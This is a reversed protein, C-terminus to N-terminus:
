QMINDKASIDSKVMANKSLDISTWKTNKYIIFLKSMEQTESPRASLCHTCPTIAWFYSLSALCIFLFLYLIHKCFVLQLPFRQSTSEFRVRGWPYTIDLFDPYGYFSSITSTQNSYMDGDLNMLHFSQVGKYLRSLSPSLSISSSWCGKWSFLRHHLSSTIVLVCILFPIWHSRPRQSINVITDYKRWQVRSFKKLEIGSSYLWCFTRRNPRNM